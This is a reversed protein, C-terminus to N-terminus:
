EYRFTEEIESLSINYLEDLFNVQMSGNGRSYSSAREGAIAMIAMANYTSELINDNVAVFAAVVATATCGLGTVRSMITSGNYVVLVSDGDTIYDLEGSIAVVANYRKALEKASSLADDSKIFSDVGKSKISSGNLAMIESGNGRIVNPRIAELIEVAVKDRYNSAGVGVPDFVVPIGVEKAKVGAKLMAEVWSVSLTGMNIVLASSIASIDEVEEVAHAMVPSAGISLLANATNNMVVYNTINHILPAKERVLLLNNSINKIKSM